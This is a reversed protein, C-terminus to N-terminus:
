IVQGLENVLDAITNLRFQMTEVGRRLNFQQGKEAVADLQTPRSGRLADLTQNLAVILQDAQELQSRLEATLSSIPLSQTAIRETSGSGYNSTNM